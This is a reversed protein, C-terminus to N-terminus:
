CRAGRQPETVQNFVDTANELSFIGILFFVNSTVTAANLKNPAVPM